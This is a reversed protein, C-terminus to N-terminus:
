ITSRITSTFASGLIVVQKVGQALVCLAPWYNTKVRQVPAPARYLTLGGITTISQEVKCHRDILDRLDGITQQARISM